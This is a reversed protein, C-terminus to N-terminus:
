LYMKYRNQIERYLQQQDPAVQQIDAESMACITRIAQLQDPDLAALPNDAGTDTTTPAAAPASDPEKKTEVLLEKIQETSSLGLSMSTQVLAFLLQPHKELLLGMLQPNNESMIQADRLLNRLRTPELTGLAANIQNNLSEMSGNAMIMGPPLPPIQKELEALESSGQTKFTNIVAQESSFNCKLYRNGIAYNNLNRVASRATELDQYEIFAYGKSKGTERDFLLKSSVVPGVSRAIDLIQDETGLVEDLCHEIGNWFASLAGRQNNSSVSSVVIVVNDLHNGLDTGSVFDLLQDNTLVTNQGSGSGRQDDSCVSLSDSSTDNQGGGVIWTSWVVIASNLIIESISARSRLGDGILNVLGRQLELGVLDDLIQGLDIQGLNSGLRVTRQLHFDDVGRPAPAKTEGPSLTAIMASCALLMGYKLFFPTCPSALDIGVDPASSRTALAWPKFTYSTGVPHFNKQARNSALFSDMQPSSDNPVPDSWM